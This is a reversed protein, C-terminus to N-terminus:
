SAEWFRKIPPPLDGLDITEFNEEFYQEYESLNDRCFVELEGETMRPSYIVDPYTSNEAFQVTGDPFMLLGVGGLFCEVAATNPYRESGMPDFYVIEDATM